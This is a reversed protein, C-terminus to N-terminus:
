RTLVIPMVQRAVLFNFFEKLQQYESAAYLTRTNVFHYSAVVFHENYTTKFSCSISKDPMVFKKDEPVSEIKYGPPITVTIMISREELIGLDIPFQRESSNFAPQFGDEMISPSLYLKDGIETVNSFFSGGYFENFIISGEKSHKVGMSDTQVSSSAAFKTLAELNQSAHVKAKTFASYGTSAVVVKGSLTQGPEIVLRARIMTQSPHNQKIDIWGFSNKDILLGVSNLCYEPVAGFPLFRSTADLLYTSGNLTLQCLMYNFQDVTPLEKLIPGHRKTSTMVLSPDLGAFELMNFLLHNYDEAVAIGEEWQPNDVLFRYISQAKDLPTTLHNVLEATKKKLIRSPFNQKAISYNDRLQKSLDRWTTTQDWFELRAYVKLHEPMLTEVKYAPVNKFVWKSSSADRIDVIDPDINGRVFYTLQVPSALKFESWLVPADTQITWYPIAGPFSTKYKLEVICGESLNPLVVVKENSHKKDDYIDDGEIKTSKIKGNELHYTAAKVSQIRGLNNDLKFNGWLEFAEKRNVKIRIHREYYPYVFEGRDFLVVSAQVTETHFDTLAVEGFDSPGKQGFLVHPSAIILCFLLLKLSFVTSYM